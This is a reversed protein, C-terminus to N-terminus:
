FEVKACHLIPSIQETIGLVDLIWSFPLSRLERKTLDFLHVPPIQLWRSVLCLLLNYSLCMCISTDNHVYMQIITYILELYKLLFSFSLGKSIITMENKKKLYRKQLGFFSCFFHLFLWLIELLINENTMVIGSLFSWRKTQKNTCTHTLHKNRKTICRCCVQVTFIQAHNNELLEM